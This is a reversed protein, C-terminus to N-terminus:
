ARVPRKAQEIAHQLLAKLDVGARAAEAMLRVLESFNTERQVMYLKLAKYDEKSIRAWVKKDMKDGRDTNDIHRICGHRQRTLGKKQSTWGSSVWKGIEKKLRM